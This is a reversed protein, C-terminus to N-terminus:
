AGAAATAAATIALLSECLQEQPVSPGGAASVKVSLLQGDAVDVVAFCATQSRKPKIIAAPYGSVDIKRVEDLIASLYSDVDKNVVPTLILGPGKESLSGFLCEKNGPFSGSVSPGSPKNVNFGLDALPLKKGFECADVGTLDIAKPRNSGSSTSTTASGSPQSSSSETVPQDVGTPTGPTKDGSCAALSAASLVVGALVTLARNRYRGM